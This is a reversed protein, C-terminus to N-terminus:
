WRDDDTIEPPEPVVDARSPQQTAAWAGGRRFLMWDDDEAFHYWFVTPGKVYEERLEANIFNVQVVQSNRSEALRVFAQYM